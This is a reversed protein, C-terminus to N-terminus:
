EDDRFFDEFYDRTVDSSRPPEGPHESRYSQRSAQAFMRDRQAQERMQQRQLKAERLEEQRRRYLMRYRIVLIAYLIIVCLIVALAVRVWTNKLTNAVTAGMSQLYSLSVSRNAVLNASGYVVGDMSITIKGLVDGENIPAQCGGQEDYITVTKELSALDLDNPLVASIANEARLAVTDADSGLRVPIETLLDTATIVDQRTYNNFVWDYMHTSDTYNSYDTFGTATEEMKGGMVVCLLSIGDKKASSVLCYGASSTYGTKIGIAPEYYFGKYISDASILGNTNTLDRVNSRNTAQITYRATDCITVFDEYEMAKRAILAMDQATTYHNENPLGHTNTFHTGTCGLAQATQNMREVFADTSGCLYIAMINCAENASVVMTCYLLDRLSMTEGEVISATSGDDELDFAYGPQATVMDDMTVEGAEVAEIVVMATMIKTLSAPYVKMDANQSFYVYGTDQDVLYVAASKVNPPAAAACVSPSLIGTCLTIMLLFSLIRSKKM